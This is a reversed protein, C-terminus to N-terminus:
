IFKARVEYGRRKFVPAKRNAVPLFNVVRHIHELLKLSHLSTEPTRNDRNGDLSKEKM